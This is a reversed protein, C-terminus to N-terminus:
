LPPKPRIVPRGAPPIPRDPLRSPGRLWISPQEGSEQEEDDEESEEEEGEREGEEQQEEEESGSEHEM